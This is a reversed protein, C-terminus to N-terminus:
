GKNAALMRALDSDADNDLLEKNKKLQEARRMSAATEADVTEEKIKKLLVVTEM